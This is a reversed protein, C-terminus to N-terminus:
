RRRLHTAALAAILLEANSEADSDAAAQDAFPGRQLRLQERWHGSSTSASMLAWLALDPPQRTPGPFQM